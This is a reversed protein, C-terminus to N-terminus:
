NKQSDFRYLVDALENVGMNLAAGVSDNYEQLNNKQPYLDDMRKAWIIKGKGWATAKSIRKVATYPTRIVLNDAVIYSEFEGANFSSTRRGVWGEYASHHVEGPYSHGYQSVDGVYHAMAGLYFAAGSHDGAKYAALAKQYEEEARTAARDNIMCNCDKDWQVSHGKSRDDYGTNPAGCATSIKKNDPSETGLLYMTKYENQWYNGPMLALAHDAVWDHTSYPPSACEEPLDTQANGSQGNQWATVSTAFLFAFFLLYRMQYAPSYRRSM